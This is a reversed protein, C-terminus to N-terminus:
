ELAVANETKVFNIHGVGLTTKIQELVATDKVHLKIVFALRVEWNLKRRKDQLISILFTGEADAFGTIWWRNM